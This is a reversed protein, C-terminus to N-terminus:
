TEVPPQEYPYKWDELAETFTAEDFREYKELNIFSCFVGTRRAAEALESDIAFDPPATGVVVMGNPGGYDPLFFLTQRERGSDKLRYKPDIRFRFKCSAEIWADIVREELESYFM